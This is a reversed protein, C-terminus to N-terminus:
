ESQTFEEPKDLTKETFKGDLARFGGDLIDKVKKYESTNNGKFSEKVIAKELYDLFHEAVVHMMAKDLYFEKLKNPKDM